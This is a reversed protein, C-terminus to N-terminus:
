EGEETLTAALAERAKAISQYDTGCEVIWRLAEEFAKVRAQLAAIKKEYSDTLDTLISM